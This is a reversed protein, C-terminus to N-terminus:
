NTGSSRSPRKSAARGLPSVPSDDELTEGRSAYYPKDLEIEDKFDDWSEDSNFSETRSTWPRYPLNGVGSGTLNIRPLPSLVAGTSRTRNEDALNQDLLHYSMAFSRSILM